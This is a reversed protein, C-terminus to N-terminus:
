EGAGRKETRDAEGGFPVERLVSYNAGSPSLRSEYVRYSAVSVTDFAVGSVASAYTEGWGPAVRGRVRGVTVHPHFPREDRPFGAGSLANEMNQHLKRVLELPERIGIWLVRPARLTPFAGAEGVRLMFPPIGRGAEALLGALENVRSVPTEGLFKLTLHLNHEPTWSVPIGKERLHSVAGAIARRCDPSLGIGIFLRM